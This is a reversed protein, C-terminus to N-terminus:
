TSAPLRPGLVVVGTLYWSYNDETGKIKLDFAAAHAAHSQGLPRVVIWQWACTYCITSELTRGSEPMKNFNGSALTPESLLPPLLSGALGIRHWVDPQIQGPEVMAWTLGSGLSNLTMCVLWRCKGCVSEPRWIPQGPPCPQLVHLTQQSSCPGRVRPIPKTLM